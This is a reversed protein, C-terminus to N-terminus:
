GQLASKQALFTTSAAPCGKGPKGDFNQLTVISTQIRTIQSQKSNDEPFPTATGFANGAQVFQNLKAIFASKDPPCTCPIRVGNIGACDGGARDQGATVGFQPVLAANVPGSTSGSSTTAPNSAGASATASGTTAPPAPPGAGQQGQGHHGPAPPQVEGQQQGHAAFPLPTAMTLGVLATLAVVLKM